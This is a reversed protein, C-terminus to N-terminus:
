NNMTMTMTTMMMVMMVKNVCYLLLMITCNCTDIKISHPSRWFVALQLSIVSAVGVTTQDPSLLKAVNYKNVQKFM